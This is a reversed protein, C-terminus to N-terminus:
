IPHGYRLEKRESLISLLIFVRRFYNMLSPSLENCHPHSKFFFPFTMERLCEREFVSAKKVPSMFYM